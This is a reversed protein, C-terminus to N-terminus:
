SDETATCGPKYRVQDSVGFVPKRVVLGMHLCDGPFPAILVLTEGDFGFQFIALVVFFMSYLSCVTLQILLERAFNVM